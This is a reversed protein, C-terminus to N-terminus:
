LYTIIVALGECRVGAPIIVYRSLPTALSTLVRAHCYMPCQCRGGSRASSTQNDQALQRNGVLLMAFRIADLSQPSSSTSPASASIAPLPTASSLSSLHAPRGVEDSRNRWDFARSQKRERGIDRLEQLVRGMGVRTDSEIIIRPMTSSGSPRNSGSDKVQRITEILM